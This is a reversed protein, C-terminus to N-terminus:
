TVGWGQQCEPRCRWSSLNRRSDFMRGTEQHSSIAAFRQLPQPRSFIHSSHSMSKSIKESVSTGSSNEQMLPSGDQVGFLACHKWVSINAQWPVPKSHLVFFAGSSSTILVEMQTPHVLHELINGSKGRSEPTPFTTPKPESSKSLCGLFLQSPIKSTLAM